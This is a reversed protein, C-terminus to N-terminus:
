SEVNDSGGSFALIRFILGHRRAQYEPGPMQGQYFRQDLAAVARVLAERSEPIEGSEETRSVGAPGRSPPRFGGYVLLLALTAGVVIPITVHWFSGDVVAHGIRDFRSPQPLQSLELMLPQGPSFEGGEWVQYVSGRVDVEPMRALPAVRIPGLRRPVLVQYVRAGQLLSDRYAVSDGQYPFSFSYNISHEGPVIPATLAFGTGMPIVRGGTLDSQVDLNEAQAPLSFRLFSIDAPDTINDINPVLTRDSANVLNLFGVAALEREKENIDAIVLAQRVVQVVSVDRTAEYVTLEVPLALDEPTLLASYRMGQYDVIVGHSLIDGAPVDDFRFNGGADTTAESTAVLKGDTQLSHMLVTTNAPVEAGETGNILRGQLSVSEQARAPGPAVGSWIVLALLTLLVPFAVSYDLRVKM